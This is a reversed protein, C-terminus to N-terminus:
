EGPRVKAVIVPRTGALQDISGIVHAELDVPHMGTRAEDVLNPWLRSGMEHTLVPRGVLEEIRQHLFPFEVTLVNNSWREMEAAREDGTMSEVPRRMIAVCDPCAPPLPSGHESCTPTPDSVPSDTM